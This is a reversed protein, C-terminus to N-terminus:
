ISNSCNLNLLMNTAAKGLGSSGGTVICILNNFKM